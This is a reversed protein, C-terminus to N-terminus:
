GTRIQDADIGHKRMKLKFNNRDLEAERAARSINGNHRVLMRRVYDAEFTARASAFAPPEPDNANWASAGASPQSGEAPASSASQRASRTGTSAADSGARSVGQALFAHPSDELLTGDERRQLIVLRHIANELERVNGPWNYTELRALLEPALGELWPKDELTKYRDLFHAALPAVDERRERLPPIQLIVTALRDFLDRRLSADEADDVPRNTAAFVRADVQLEDKGGVRRLTGEQLFRLLKVQMSPSMEGVEDLFVSGGRAEELLGPKTRDAGTFAGKEYGFLESELLTEAIGGCNLKILPGKRRDSRRHLAEAVLEKGSGREGLILAPAQSPGVLDIMRALERSAPSPGAIIERSGRLAENEAVAADREHEVARFRSSVYLSVGTQVALKQLFYHDEEDFNKASERTVTLLGIADSAPDISFFAAEARKPQFDPFPLAKAILKALKQPGAGYFLDEPDVTAVADEGRGPSSAGIQASPPPAPAESERNQIEDPGFVLQKSKRASQDSAGAASLLRFSRAQGAPAWIEASDCQLLALASLSISKLVDEPDLKASILVNIEILEELKRTRRM